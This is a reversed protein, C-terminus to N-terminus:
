KKLRKTIKSMMLKLRAGITLKEPKYMDQAMRTREGGDVYSTPQPPKYMHQLMLTRVGDDIHSAPRTPRYMDQAMRTRVGDDKATDGGSSDGNSSDGDSSDEDYTSPKPQYMYQSMRTTVTPRGVAADSKMANIHQLVESVATPCGVTTDSKKENIYQLVESNCNMCLDYGDFSISALLNSKKCRDCFVNVTSTNHHNYSGYQCVKYLESTLDSTMRLVYHMNM